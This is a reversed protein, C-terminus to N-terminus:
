SGANANKIAELWMPAVMEQGQHNLHCFDVRYENGLLNTNAGPYRRASSADGVIRQAAEVEPDYLGSCRSHIGILWRKIQANRNVYDIVSLLRSVYEARPTGYDASGQHWIAFDFTIGKKRILELAQNLKDFARGGDQWDAVKSGGVGIPMFIVQDAIKSEIIKKGTPMWMSGKDCDAWEFPDQAPKISGDKGVQMVNEVPGYAYENCNSSISQGIVLIRMSVPTPAPPPIPVPVPTPAPASSGGGNGGCAGLTLCILGLAIRALMSERKNMIKIFFELRYNVKERM